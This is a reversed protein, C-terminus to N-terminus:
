TKPSPDGRLKAFSAVGKTLWSPTLGCSSNPMDFCHLLRTFSYALMADFFVIRNFRNSYLRLSSSVCIMASKSRPSSDRDSTLFSAFVSSFLVNCASLLEYPPRTLTPREAPLRFTLWNPAKSRSRKATNSLNAKPGSRCNDRPGSAEPLSHPAFARARYNTM